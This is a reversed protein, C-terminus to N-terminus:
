KKHGDLRTMVDLVASEDPHVLRASVGLSSHGAIRALTWVDCGSAGLRSPPTACRISCSGACRRPSPRMATSVSAPQRSSTAVARPPGSWVWGEQPSDAAKWRTELIHRVPTMSLVRRAATSKGHTVLMTGHLGNVWGGAVIYAAAGLSSISAPIRSAVGMWLAVPSITRVLSPM